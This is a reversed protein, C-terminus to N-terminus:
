FHFLLERRGKKRNHLVLQGRQTDGIHQAHAAAAGLGGEQGVGSVEADGNVVGQPGIQQGPDGLGQM